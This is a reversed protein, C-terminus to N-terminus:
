ASESLSSLFVQRSRAATRAPRTEAVRASLPPRRNFSPEVASPVVAKPPLHAVAASASPFSTNCRVGSSFCAPARRPTWFCTGRVGPSALFAWTCRGQTSSAARVGITQARALNLRRFFISIPYQLASLNGYLVIKRTPSNGFAVNRPLEVASCGATLRLTTPEFGVRPAM